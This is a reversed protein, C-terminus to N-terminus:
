LMERFYELLNNKGTEFHLYTKGNYEISVIFNIRHHTYSALSVYTIESDLRVDIYFNNARLVKENSEVICYYYGEKFDLRLTENYYTISEVTGSKTVYNEDNSYNDIYQKNIFSCGNCGSLMFVSCLLVACIATLGIRKKM